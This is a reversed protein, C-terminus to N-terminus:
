MTELNNVLEKNIFINNTYIFFEHVDFIIKKCQILVSFRKKTRLGFTNMLICFRIDVYKLWSKNYSGCTNVLLTYKIKIKKRSCEITKCAYFNM